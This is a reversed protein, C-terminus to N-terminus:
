CGLLTGCAPLLAHSCCTGVCECVCAGSVGATGCDALFTMGATLALGKGGAESLGGCTSLGVVKDYQLGGFSNCSYPNASTGYVIVFM